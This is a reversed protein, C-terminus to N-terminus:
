PAPTGDAAARAAARRAYPPPHSHYLWEVFPSPREEALTQETLRRLGSDLAGPNGTLAVAYRDARQELQRSLLNGAPRLLLLVGAVILVVVPLGAVDAPGSLGLPSALRPLLWGAAGCALAVAATEGAITKWPDRHLCHALEHALVVEIEDDTYDALLTDTLLVCRSRGLGALVANPQPAAAETRWEHIAMDSVGARRILSELRRRLPSPALPRVQGPRSLALTPALRAAAITVAAFGLSAALWWGAPWWRMAAFLLVAGAVWAGLHVLAAQVFEALWVTVPLRSRGFRREVVFEGYFKAPAVVLRGAAALVCAYGAASLLYHVPEPAAVAQALGSSADAVARSGGSGALGALLAAWAAGALLAARRQLRRYRTAKGENM